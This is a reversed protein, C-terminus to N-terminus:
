YAGSETLKRRLCLIILREGVSKVKPRNNKEIRCYLYCTELLSMSGELKPIKNWM